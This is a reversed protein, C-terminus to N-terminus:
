SRVAGFITDLKELISTWGGTHSAREKDDSIAHTLVVETSDGRELFEITVVSDKVPNDGEWGWTYVLKRPPDVEAYVGSVKHVAGDPEAMHIRYSGGVRVNMEALSVHLPGPAHWRQLEAPTTWAAYVSARDARITRRVQLTPIEAAVRNTAMSM